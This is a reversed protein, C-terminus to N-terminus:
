AAFEDPLEHIIQDAHLLASRRQDPSRVTWALIALGNSRADAAFRSPLSRIDYALFDPRALRLALHRGILSKSKGEESVVLGRVIAPRHNAFWRVAPASFSMVAAPGSHEDLAEAVSRCLARWSRAVKIEILLPARGDILRLIEGLPAIGEGSNRLRVAALQGSDFDRLRGSADCLRDLRDDHFVM